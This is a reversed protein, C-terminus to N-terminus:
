SVVSDGAVSYGAFCPFVTSLKSTVTTAAEKDGQAGEEANLEHWLATLRYPRLPVVTGLTLSLYYDPAPFRSM